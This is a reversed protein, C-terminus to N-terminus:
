LSQRAQQTRLSATIEEAIAPVSKSTTDIRIDARLYCGRRQEYLMRFETENKFLPRTGPTAACRRRLEEIDADLFVVPFGTTRIMAENQSQVFAGGGLAIIVHAGHEVEQIVARLASTEMARFAAEGEDRFIDAIARGDRDIVRDDLDVFDWSLRVALERGVSTKGAGM